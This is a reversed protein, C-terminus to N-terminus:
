SADGAFGYAVISSYTYIIMTIGAHFLEMIRARVLSFEGCQHTEDGSRARFEDRFRFTQLHLPAAGAGEDPARLSPLKM